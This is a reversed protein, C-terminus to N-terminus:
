SSLQGFREGLSLGAARLIESFQEVPVAPPNERLPAAALVQPPDTLNLYLPQTVLVVGCRRALM